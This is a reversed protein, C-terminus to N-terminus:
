AKKKDKNGLKAFFEDIPNSSGQHRSIVYQQVITLLNSWTYYIVLGASFSGFIFTFMIPMMQTVQAQAPDTSTPQMKQLLWMSCGYLIPWIGISFAALAPISNPDYPLLGFLNLFSTPDKASLDHVWGYFPAHRMEISISLVKYLALFIPMQFLMPICGAVPNIKEEQYLKMIEQQQRAKDDAYKEQVVKMKPSIDRLKAFSKYSQFVLPFTVTKVLVTMALMALGISGIIATLKILLWHFPKSIFWLVGWDIADVFRPINYQKGYAELVDTDKAGAFVREKVSVSQGAAVDKAATMYSTEYMFKKEGTPTAKYTTNITENQDPILAVAWYEETQGVWGGKSTNTQVKGKDMDRYKLRVLKNELVGIAGQLNPGRAFPPHSFRRVAGYSQLKVTAASTNTVTDTYTFMYKNDVEVKRTFKLGQGNDYQFTVPTTPTLSNNGVQQWQTNPGPLNASTNDPSTWGFTAYYGDKTGQPNLLNVPKANKDSPALDTYKALSLNDLRLGFTSLSGSVMDNKIDIRKSMSLAQSLPMENVTAPNKAAVTQETQQKAMQAKKAKEQPELWFTQFAFLIALSVVAAIIFNKSDPQQPQM